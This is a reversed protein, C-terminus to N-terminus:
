EKTIEKDIENLMELDLEDPEVEPIADWLDEVIFRFYDEKNEETLVFDPYLEKEKERQEKAQLLEEKTVKFIAM